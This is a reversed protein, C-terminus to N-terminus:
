WRAPGAYNRRVGTHHQCGTSGDKANSIQQLKGLKNPADFLSVPFLMEYALLLNKRSRESYLLM